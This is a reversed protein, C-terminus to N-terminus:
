KPKKADRAKTFAADVLADLRDPDGQSPDFRQWGFLKFVAGEPPTPTAGAAALEGRQAPELLIEAMGAGPGDRFLRLFQNCGIILGVHEKGVECQLEAGAAQATAQARVVLRRLAQAHAADVQMRELLRLAREDGAAVAPTHDM